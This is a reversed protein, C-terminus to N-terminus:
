GCLLTILSHLVVGVVIGIGFIKKKDNMLTVTRKKLWPYIILICVSIIGAFVYQEIPQKHFGLLRRLLQFLWYGCVLLEKWSISEQKEKPTADSLDEDLYKQLRNKKM